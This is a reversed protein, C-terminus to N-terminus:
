IQRWKNNNFPSLLIENLRSKYSNVKMEFEKDKKSVPEVNMKEMSKSEKNTIKPKYGYCNAGFRVNQNSIFGGNIGPRGCSHEEGEKNKLKDYTKKQTPYLALQDKSWGYSCWEGGSKYSNEIEDYSALRAGFAKCVAKADDYSYENDNVHFVEKKELVEELVEQEKDQTIEINIEPEDSLLKSISTKIDIDLFYKLGNVVILFVIVGWLLIELIGLGTNNNIIGNSLEGGGLLNGSVMM